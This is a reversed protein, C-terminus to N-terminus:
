LVSGFRRQKWLTMFTIAHTALFAPVLVTLGCMTITLPRNM